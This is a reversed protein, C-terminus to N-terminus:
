NLSTSSHQAKLDEAAVFDDVYESMTTRNDKPTRDLGGPMQQFARLAADAGVTTLGLPVAIAITTAM